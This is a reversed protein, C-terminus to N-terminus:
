SVSLLSLQLPFSRSIKVKDRNKKKRMVSSKLYSACFPLNTSICSQETLIDEYLRKSLTIANGNRSLVMPAIVATKLCDLGYNSAIPMPALMQAADLLGAHVKDRLTAWSNQKQLSVSLGWKDFFGMEKAVVLPACDTLAMFGLELNPQELQNLLPMSKNM